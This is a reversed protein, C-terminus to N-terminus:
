EPLHPLTLTLSARHEISRYRDPEDTPGRYIAHIVNLGQNRVPLTVKGEDDTKFPIQDPDNVYDALVDADAIPEGMFFVQVTIPEGLMQPIDTGVPVVQLNHGDFLPVQTKPIQNLHVAYKMTRESIVADPVEDYGTNHWKGEPDKSWVGYNMTAGVAAVPLESDVFPIPGDTRFTTEVPYWDEAYGTISTLKDMRRVADLDDAGVGFIMALQGARQAFWIGHASLPSISVVAAAGATLIMTSRFLLRKTVM